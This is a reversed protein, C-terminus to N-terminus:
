ASARNAWTVVTFTAVISGIVGAIMAGIIAQNIFKPLVSSFWDAIYPLSLYGIFGVGLGLLWICFIAIGRSL